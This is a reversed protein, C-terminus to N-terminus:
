EKINFRAKDRELREPEITLVSKVTIEKEPRPAKKVCLAQRYADSRTMASGGAIRENIEENCLDELEIASVSLTISDFRERPEFQLPANGSLIWGTGLTLHNIWDRADLASKFEITHTVCDLGRVISGARTPISICDKTKLTAKIMNKREKPKKIRNDPMTDEEINLYRKYENWYKSNKIVSEAELWRAEKIDRAYYYAWEPSTMIIAEAEPWPAKKVYRAYHYAWEPSTMIIPEAEPWPAKKIHLTYLYALEPNEMIVPEAEPWRAKKIHCTYLYASLPDKMILPEAKPWPAREVQLAHKYAGYPTM